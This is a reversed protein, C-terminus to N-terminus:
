GSGCHHISFYELSFFICSPRCFIRGGNNQTKPVEKESASQLFDSCNTIDGTVSRLLVQRLNFYFFFLQSVRTSIPQRAECYSLSIIAEVSHLSLLLQLSRHHHSCVGVVGNRLGTEKKEDSYSNVTRASCSFNIYVLHRGIIVCRKLIRRVQARM